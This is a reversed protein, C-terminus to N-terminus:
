ANLDAVQEESLTKVMRSQMGAYPSEVFVNGLALFLTAATLVRKM